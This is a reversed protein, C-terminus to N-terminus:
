FMVGWTSPFEKVLPLKEARAAFHPIPLFDAEEFRQGILREVVSREVRHWSLWSYEMGDDLPEYFLHPVGAAELARLRDQWGHTGAEFTLSLVNGARDLTLLFPRSSSGALFRGCLEGAFGVVRAEFPYGHTTHPM